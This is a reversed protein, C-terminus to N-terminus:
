LFLHVGYDESDPVVTVDVLTRWDLEVVIAMKLTFETFVVAGPPWCCNRRSAVLDVTIQVNILLSSIMEIKYSFYKNAFGKWM